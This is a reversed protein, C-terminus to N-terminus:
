IHQLYITNEAAVPLVTLESFRILESESLPVENDMARIIKKLEAVAAASDNDTQPRREYAQLYDRCIPYIGSKDACGCVIVEVREVGNARPVLLCDAWEMTGAYFDSVAILIVSKNM